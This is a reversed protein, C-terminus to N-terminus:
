YFLKALYVTTCEYLLFEETISFLAYLQHPFMKLSNGCFVLNELYCYLMFVLTYLHININTDTHINLSLTNSNYFLARHNRIVSSLLRM